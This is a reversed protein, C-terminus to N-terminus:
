LLKELLDLWLPRPAAQDDQVAPRPGITPLFEDDIPWVAATALPLADLGETMVLRQMNILRFEEEVGAGPFRTAAGPSIGASPERPGLWLTLLADPLDNAQETAPSVAPDPLAAPQPLPAGALPPSSPQPAATV